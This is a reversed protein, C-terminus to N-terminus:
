RDPHAPHWPRGAMPPQGSRGHPYTVLEFYFGSPDVCHVTFADVGAEHHYAPKKGGLVRVETATLFDLAAAVDDVYFALHWGGVDLMGPWDRCQGSYPPCEIVEINLFQHRFLRVLSPEARVDVNAYAGFSSGGRNFPPELDYFREAGLVDVLLRTAAELDAVAM